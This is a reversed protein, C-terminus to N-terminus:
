GAAEYGSPAQRSAKRGGAAQPPAQFQSQNAKNEGHQSQNAKNEGHEPRSMKQYTDQLLSTVGIQFPSYQSQKACNATNAQETANDLAARIEADHKQRAIDNAEM